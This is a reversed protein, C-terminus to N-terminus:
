ESRNKGLSQREPAEDPWTSSWEPCTLLRLQPSSACAPYWEAAKEPMVTAMAVMIAVLNLVKQLEGHKPGTM